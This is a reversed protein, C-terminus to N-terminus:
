LSNPNIIKDLGVFTKFDDINRTIIVLQYEVATAAILADPLKIKKTKRLSITTNVVSETIPLLNSENIFLELMTMETSTGNFALLEIKNIISLCHEQSNIVEELWDTAKESFRNALLDIVVNTDILYKKGM